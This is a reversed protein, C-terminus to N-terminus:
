LLLLLTKCFTPMLIRDVLNTTSQCSRALIRKGNMAHQLPVVRHKTQMTHCGGTVHGQREKLASLLLLKTAWQHPTWIRINKGNRAVHGRMPKLQGRCFARLCCVRYYM